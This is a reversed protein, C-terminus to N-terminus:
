QLVIPLEINMKVEWRPAFMDFVVTIFGYVAVHLTNGKWQSRKEQSREKLNNKCKRGERWM